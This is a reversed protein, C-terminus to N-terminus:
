AEDLAARLRVSEAPTLVEELWDAAENPDRFARRQPHKAERIVREMQLVAVASAESVLIASREIHSNHRRFMETLHETDEQLLFKARRYDGIVICPVDFSRVAEAMARDAGAIEEATVRGRM